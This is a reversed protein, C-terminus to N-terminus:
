FGRLYRFSTENSSVPLRHHVPSPTGLPHIEGFGVTTLTTVAMYFADFPPWDAILVLGAMGILPLISLAAFALTLRKWRSALWFRRLTRRMESGGM